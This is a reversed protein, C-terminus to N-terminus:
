KKSPRKDAIPSAKGSATKKSRDSNLAAGIDGLTPSAAGWTKDRAQATGPTIECADLAALEAASPGSGSPSLVNYTKAKMQPAPSQKTEKIKQAAAAAAADTDLKGLRGLKNVTASTSGSFGGPLSGAHTVRVYCDFGSSSVSVRSLFSVVVVVLM